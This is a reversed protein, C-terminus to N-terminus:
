VVKALVGIMGASVEVAATGSSGTFYVHHNKPIILYPRLALTMGSTNSITRKTLTTSLGGVAPKRRLRIDVNAAQKKNLDAYITSILFYENYAISTSAKLSSGENADLSVHVASDTQPVGATLTVAGSRDEYAYVTEDDALVTSVTPRIRVSTALPTLLIVRNQGNLTVLQSVFTLDGSDYTHGEIRIDGLAGADSTSISDIGNSTLFLEEEESGLLQQITVETTLPLNSNVGYKFLSKKKQIVSVKEGYLELIEDQAYKVWYDEIDRTFM